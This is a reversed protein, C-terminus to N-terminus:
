NNQKPYQFKYYERSVSDQENFWDYWEGREDRWHNRLFWYTIKETYLPLLRKDVNPNTKFYKLLEKVVQEFSQSMDIFTMKEGNVLLMHVYAASGSVPPISGIRFIDCDRSAIEETVDSNDLISYIYINNAEMPIKTSKEIIDAIIKKRSCDFKVQGSVQYCLFITLIPIIGKM